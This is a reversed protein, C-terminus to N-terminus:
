CAANDGRGAAYQQDGVWWCPCCWPPSPPLASYCADAKCVPIRKKYTNKKSPGSPPFNGPSRPLPGSTPNTTTRLCFFASRKARSFFKTGSSSKFRWGKPPGAGSAPTDVLKVMQAIRRITCRKM